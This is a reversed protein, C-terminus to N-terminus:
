CVVSRQGASKKQGIAYWHNILVTLINRQSIFPVVSGSIYAQFVGSLHLYELTYFLFDPVLIAPDTKVGISNPIKERLPKGANHGKLQIWFDPDDNTFQIMFNV